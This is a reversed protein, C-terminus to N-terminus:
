RKPEELGLLVRAMILVRDFSVKNGQRLTAVTASSVGTKNGARENSLGYIEQLIYSEIEKRHKLIENNLFKIYSEIEKQHEIAENIRKEIEHM